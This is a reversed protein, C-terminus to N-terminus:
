ALPVEIEAEGGNVLWTVETEVRGSGGCILKGRGVSGSLNGIKVAIRVSKRSVDPFAQVDSLWVQPTSRLEISGAIGNWTAGLADSVAHADPMHGNNGRPDTVIMRNDLRITLRHTGPELVGLDFGHPSVLSRMSGVQRDDVWVTSEWRPRELFLQTRRGHWADPIDVSRQYWAVGLYHRPPQALFPVEVRGPQSFANRLEDS